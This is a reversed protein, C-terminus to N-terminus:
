KTPSLPTFHGARLETSLSDVTRITVAPIQSQLAPNLMLTVVDSQSGLRIVRATFRKEKV